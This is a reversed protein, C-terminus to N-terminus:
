RKRILLGGCTKFVTRCKLSRAFDEAQDSARGVVFTSNLWDAIIGAKLRGVMASANLGDVIFSANLGYRAMMTEFQV